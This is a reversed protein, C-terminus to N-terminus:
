VKYRNRDVLGGIIYVKTPDLEDGIEQESDATLYVLDKSSFIELYPETTFKM